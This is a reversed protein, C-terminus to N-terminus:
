CKLCYANRVMWNSHYGFISILLQVGNMFQSRNRLCIATAMGVAEKWADKRRNVCCVQLIAQFFPARSPLELNFKEFTFNLLKKKDPSRVCSPEKKSCIATCERDIEKLVLLQLEKRLNPSRWAANAIQKYTGRVLMKGLSELQEPVKREMKNSPWEIRVNVSTSSPKNSATSEVRKKPTSSLLPSFSGSPSAVLVSEENAISSSSHGELRPRKSSSNTSELSNKLLFVLGAKKLSTVYNLRMTKQLEELNQQLNIRKNLLGHCQRCIYESAAHVHFELNALTVNVDFITKKKSQVLFREYDKEIEKFCLICKFLSMSKCILGFSYVNVPGKDARHCSYLPM